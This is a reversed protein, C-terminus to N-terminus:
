SSRDRDKGKSENRGRGPRLRGALALDTVDLCRQVMQRNEFKALGHRRKGDGIWVAKLDLSMVVLDKHLRKPLAHGGIEKDPGRRPLQAVFEIRCALEGLHIDQNAGFRRGIRVALVCAEASGDSASIRM